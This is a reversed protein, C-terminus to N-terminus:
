KAREASEQVRREFDRVHPLEYTITQKIIPDRMLIRTVCLVRVDMECGHPPLTDYPIHPYLKCLLALEQDMLRADNASTAVRRVAQGTLENLGIMQLEVRINKQNAWKQIRQVRIPAQCMALYRNLVGRAAVTHDSNEATVYFKGGTSAYMIPDLHEKINYLMVLPIPESM